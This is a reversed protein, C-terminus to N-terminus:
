HEHVMEVVRARGMAEGGCPCSGFMPTVDGPGLSTPMVVEGSRVEACKPCRLRYVFLAVGACGCVPGAGREGAGLGAGQGPRGGDRWGM